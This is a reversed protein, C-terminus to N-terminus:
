EISVYFLYRAKRAVEKMDVSEVMGPIFRAWQNRPNLDKNQKIGSGEERIEQMSLKSYIQGVRIFPVWIELEKGQGKREIAGFLQYDKGLLQKTRLKGFDTGIIDILDRNKTGLDVVMLKPAVSSITTATPNANPTPSQNTVIQKLAHLGKPTELSQNHQYSFEQRPTNINLSPNDHNPNQNEQGSLQNLTNAREGKLSSQLKQTHSIISKLLMVEMPIYLTDSHDRYRVKFSAQIGDNSFTHMASSSITGNQLIVFQPRLIIPDCILTVQDSSLKSPLDMIDIDWTVPTLIQSIVDNIRKERLLHIDKQKSPDSVTISNRLYQRLKNEFEPKIKKLKGSTDSVCIVDFCVISTETSEGSSATQVQFQFWTVIKSTSNYSLTQKEGLIGHVYITKTEKYKSLSSYRNIISLAKLPDANKAIIEFNQSSKGLTQEAKKVVMQFSIDSLNIDQSCVKVKVSEMKPWEDYFIVTITKTAFPNFTCDFNNYDWTM